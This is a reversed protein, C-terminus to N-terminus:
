SATSPAGDDHTAAGSTGTPRGAMDSSPGETDRSAPAPGSDGYLLTVLRATPIKIKRGLRLVPTLTAEWEGRRIMAYATWEGIGLVSAATPVDIVPGLAELAERSWREAVDDSRM